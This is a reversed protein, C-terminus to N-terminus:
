LWYYNFYHSRGDALTIDLGTDGLADVRPATMASSLDNM